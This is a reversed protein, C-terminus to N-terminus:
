SAEHCLVVMAACPLFVQFHGPQSRGCSLLSMGHSYKRPALRRWSALPLYDASGFPNHGSCFEERSEEMVSCHLLNSPVNVPFLSQHILVERAWRMVMHVSLMELLPM